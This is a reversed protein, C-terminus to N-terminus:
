KRIERRKCGLVKAIKMQNHEQPTTGNEWRSYHCQEMKLKKAIESQTLGVELTKQRLNNSNTWTKIYDTLHKM